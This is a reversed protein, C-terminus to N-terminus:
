QILNWAEKSIAEKSLQHKQELILATVLEEQLARRRKIEGHIQEEQRINAGNLAYLSEVLRLIDSSNKRYALFIKEKQSLEIGKRGASFRFPRSIPSSAPKRKKMTGDDVSMGEAAKALKKESFGDDTKEPLSNLFEPNRGEMSYGKRDQIKEQPM